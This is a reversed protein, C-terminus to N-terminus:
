DEDEFLCKTDIGMRPLIDKVIIMVHEKGIVEAKEDSRLKLQNLVNNVDIANAHYWFRMKTVKNAIGM